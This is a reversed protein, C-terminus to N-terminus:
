VWWWFAAGLLALGGLAAWRLRLRKRSPAALLRTSQAAVSADEHVHTESGHKPTPARTPVSFVSHEASPADTPLMSLSHEYRPEPAPTPRRPAAVPPPTPKRADAVPTPKRADAAPVPAAQARAQAGAG